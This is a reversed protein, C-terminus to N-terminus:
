RNFLIASLYKYLVCMSVVPPFWEIKKILNKIM